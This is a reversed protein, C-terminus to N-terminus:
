RNGQFSGDGSAVASLPPIATPTTGVALAAPTESITPASKAVAQGATTQKPPTRATISVPKTYHTYFQYALAALFLPVVICAAYIVLLAAIRGVDAHGGNIFINRM